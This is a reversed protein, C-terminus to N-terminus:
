RRTDAPIEITHIKGPSYASGSETGELGAFFVIMYLYTEKDECLNDFM